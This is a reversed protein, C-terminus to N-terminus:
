EIKKLGLKIYNQDKILNMMKPNSLEIQEVKIKSNFNRPFKSRTYTYVVISDKINKYFVPSSLDFIYDKNSDPELDSKSSQTIIALHENGWTRTRLYVSDSCQSCLIVKNSYSPKDAEPLANMVMFLSVLGFLGITVLLIIITKKM